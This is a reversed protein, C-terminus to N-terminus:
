RQSLDKQGNTSMSVSRPTLKSTHNRFSQGNHSVCLLTYYRDEEIIVLVSVTREQQGELCFGQSSTLRPVCLLSGVSILCLFTVNNSTTSVNDVDSLVNWSSWQIDQVRM